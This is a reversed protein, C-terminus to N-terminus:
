LYSKVISDKLIFKKARQYDSKVDISFSGGRLELTKLNMRLDLARLLEINEKKENITQKQTYFKRLAKPKFSVISLHKKLFSDKKKSNFPVDCRSLYIIDNNKNSVIKVINKNNKEKVRLFPVVVDTKYNRLHFEVVKDIHKPDILPEDGQIDVVLNYDKKIKKYAEFIRETGNRHFKSTLLCKANYKKAINYIKVDDCCIIVDKIKKALLARRYVHIILPIKRLPLLVKQSLRKSNLRAPILAIIKKKMREVM